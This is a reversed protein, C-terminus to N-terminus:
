SRRRKPAVFCMFPQSSTRGRGFSSGAPRGDAVAGSPLFAADTSVAEADGATNELQNELVFVFRVWGAQGPFRALYDAPDPREGARRRYALDLHLLQAFLPERAEEPSEQLFAEIRPSEAGGAAAKWAAEFRDCAADVVGAISATRSSARSSPHERM